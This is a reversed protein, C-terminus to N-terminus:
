GVEDQGKWLFCNDTADGDTCCHDDSRADEACQSDSERPELYDGDSGTGEVNGDDDSVYYFLITSRIGKTDDANSRNLHDM